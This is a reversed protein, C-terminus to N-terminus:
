GGERGGERGREGVGGRKRERERERELIINSATAGDEIGRAAVYWHKQCEDFGTHAARRTGTNWEVVVVDLICEQELGTGIIAACVGPM